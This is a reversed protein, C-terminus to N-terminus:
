SFREACHIARPPPREPSAKLSAECRALLLFVFSLLLTPRSHAYISFHPDPLPNTSCTVLVTFRANIVRSSLLLICCYQVLFFYVHFILMGNFIGSSVGFRSPQSCLLFFRAAVPVFLGFALNITKEICVGVCSAWVLIGVCAFLFCSGLRCHPIKLVRKSCDKWVGNM